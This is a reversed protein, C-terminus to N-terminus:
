PHLDEIFYREPAESLFYIRFGDPRIEGRRSRLFADSYFHLEGDRYPNTWVCHIRYAPLRVFHVLRYRIAEVEALEPQVSRGHERIFKEKAEALYLRVFIRFGVGGVLIAFFLLSEPPLAPISALFVEEMRIPNYHVLIREEPRPIRQSELEGEARFSEGRRDTFRVDALYFRGGVPRVREIVGTATEFYGGPPRLERFSRGGFFLLLLAGILLLVSVLRLKETSIISIGAM